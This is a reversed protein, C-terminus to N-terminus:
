GGFGVPRQVRSKCKHLLLALLMRLRTPYAPRMRAASPMERRRSRSAERDAFPHRSHALLDTGALAAWIGATVAAIRVQSVGVANNCQGARQIQNRM